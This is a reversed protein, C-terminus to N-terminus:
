IIRALWYLPKLSVQILTPLKWSWEGPIRYCGYTAWAGIVYGLVISTNYFTTIQVREKPHSLETILVPAGMQILSSGIGLVIKGGIFMNLSTAFFQVIVGTIIVISGMATPIRRGLRDGIWSLFIFPILGGIANSAGFFGLTSGTPHGFQEQWTPLVQMGNTM